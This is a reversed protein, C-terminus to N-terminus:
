FFNGDRNVLDMAMQIAAKIIIITTAMIMAEMTVVKLCVVWIEVITALITTTTAM